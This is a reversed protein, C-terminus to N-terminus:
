SASQAAGLAGRGAVPLGEIIGLKAAWPRSANTMARASSLQRSPRATSAASSSLQVATRARLLAQLALAYLVALNAPRRTQDPSMTALAHDPLSRPKLALGPRGAPSRVLHHHHHGPELEEEGVEKM